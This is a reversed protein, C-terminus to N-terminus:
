AFCDMAAVSLLYRHNLTKNTFCHTWGWARWFVDVVPKLVGLGNNVHSGLGDIFGKPAEISLLLLNDSRRADTLVDKMARDQLLTTLAEPLLGPNDNLLLAAAGSVHPTALSTGSQTTFSSDDSVGAVRIDVGPALIDVCSGYNSTTAVKDEISASGVTLAPGVRPPTYECADGGANGSAVVVLVGANTADTIADVFSVSSFRGGVSSSMVKPQQTQEMIWSLGELYHAFRGGGQDNMMKVAYVNAGTAVGVTAGAVISAVATGHGNRDKACEADAADCEVPDAALQIDVAPIARGAFEDHTTRIGTDMVFIHAGSGTNPPSYKSDVRGDIRDLNWSVSEGGRDAAVYSDKDNLMLSIDHDTELTPRGFTQLGKCKRAAVLVDTELGDVITLCLGGRSPHSTYEVHGGLAVLSERLCALDHEICNPGQLLWRGPLGFSPATGPHIVVRVGVTMRDQAQGSSGLSEHHNEMVAIVDEALMEDLDLSNDRLSVVIQAFQFIFLLGGHM